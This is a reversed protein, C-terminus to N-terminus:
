RRDRRIHQYYGETEGDGDDAKFKFTKGHSDHCDGHDLAVEKSDDVILKGSKGVICVRYTDAEGLDVISHTQGSNVDFTGYTGSGARKAPGSPYDSQALAGGSLVIAAVIVSGSALISRSFTKRLM